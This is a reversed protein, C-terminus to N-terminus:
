EYRLNYGSHGFWGLIDQLSITKLAAAVTQDLDGRVDYSTMTRKVKLSLCSRSFEDIVTLFKLRGGSLTTDMLFDIAWVHHACEPKSRYCANESNGSHTRKHTM